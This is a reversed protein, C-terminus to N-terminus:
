SSSMCANVARASASAGRNPYENCDNILAMRGAVHTTLLPGERALESGCKFHMGFTPALKSAFLAQLAGTKESGKSSELAGSLWRASAKRPM